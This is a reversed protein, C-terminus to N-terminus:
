RWAASRTPWVLDLRRAVVSHRGDAGIVLPARFRHRCGHADLAEVGSVRDPEM